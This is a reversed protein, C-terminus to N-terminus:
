RQSQILARSKTPGYFNRFFQAKAGTTRAEPAHCFACTRFGLNKRRWQPRTLVCSELGNNYPPLTRSPNFPNQGLAM